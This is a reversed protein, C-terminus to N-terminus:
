DSCAFPRPNGARVALRWYGALSTVHWEPGLKVGAQGPGIVVSALRTTLREGAPPPAVYTIRRQVHPGFLPYAADDGGLLAGVCGNEPVVRNLADVGEGIGHQWTQLDLVQAYSLSWPKMKAPKLENEVVAVLLTGLAVLTVGAAVARWRYVVAVLAASMVVGVLVFRGVFDNFRYAAAIFAIYVFVAAGLAARPPHARAARPRLVAIAVLLFLPGLPGFYAFDEHVYNVVHWSFPGESTGPPDIRIHLARVALHFVAAGGVVLHPIVLATALAPAGLAVVALRPKERRAAIWAAAAAVALVVAGVLSAPGRGRVGTLDFFRYLIRLVTALWGGLSLPSPSHAARDTGYGLLRGTNDVNEAYLWLDLIVFTLAFSLAPAFLRRLPIRAAFAVALVGPLALLATWKAGVGLAVAIGALAGDRTAHGVDTAGLVFYLGAAVMSATVLDTQTTTSELAVLAFTPVLLAAFASASRRFGLRVGIGYTATAAALQACFQVVAAARDSRIAVLSWLDAVEAGAPFANQRESPSNPIWYLGGHQYWAAARALHYTLSDWNNQQVTLGLFLEYALWLGVGAALVILIPHGRLRRLDPPKPTPRGRWVWVALAVGLAGLELAAYGGRGVAHFPSLLLALAEVEAFAFLWAALLFATLSEEAVSAALLLSTAVLAAGLAVFWAADAGHTLPPGQEVGHRVV